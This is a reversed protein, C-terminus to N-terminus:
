TPTTRRQAAALNSLAELLKRPEIPKTVFGNMGHALCRERQGALAHATLAFVATHTGTRKERERIAATVEFGDIEPMQIDLLVLDFTDKEFFDLAERGNVALTVRQGWRELLRTLLKLSSFNDEAILINLCGLQSKAEADLAPPLMAAPETQPIPAPMAAVKGFRATFYFTSGSDLQSEVWIRGGLLEVLHSSITLGLGTGGHRRTTSGDGQCFSKFILQQKDAPIGPGTDRVAFRLCVTQEEQSEVRVDVRVSGKETFKIANGVLNLLVQRLRFPDALLYEPVGPFADWALELGKQAAAAKLFHTSEQMLQAVEIQVPALEMRGAEIKSLDLIDNLLSLLSEASNMVDRLYERQEEPSSGDLALATLGLIANMPTRIEHSMNALFESKLQTSEKAASLAVALEDNKKRLEATQSRVRRRLVFVWASTVFTVLAVFGLVSLARDRTWWSPNEIAVVDQRSRLRIKFSQPRGIVDKEILCIGTVRLRSGERLTDNSDASREMGLATFTTKGQNLILVEEKPLLSVATLRGELTILASDYKDDNLVDDPKMAASEPPPGNGTRRYIADKLIPRYDVFGPFGVVEVRDGPALTATQSSEVYLGGSPDSIYLTGGQFQATVAGSVKVRHTPLGTNSFTQLAAIPRAALAFPDAPGAEITKIERMSPVYLAIAIIQNRQNFIAGCAGHLSIRSDVLGPPIGKHDPIRVVIRGGPVEVVMRLRGDNPPVEASRVIGEVEVWRADVSTSAMEEFTVRKALPMTAQGVVIWHPNAIDPAFDVQATTGWLEILQGTAPKPLGPTWGVWTSGTSDQLFLDREDTSADFYTVVATVHVPYGQRAQDPTLRRVQAIHTLTPLPPVPQCYLARAGLLGCIVAFRPTHFEFRNRLRVLRNSRM